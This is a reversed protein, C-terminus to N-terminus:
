LQQEYESAVYVPKIVCTSSGPRSPCLLSMETVTLSPSAAELRSWTVRDSHGICVSSPCEPNASIVQSLYKIIPSPNGRYRSVRIYIM